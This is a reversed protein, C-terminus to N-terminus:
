SKRVGNLLPLLCPYSPTPHTHALPLLFLPNLLASPSSTIISPIQLPSITLVLHTGPLLSQTLFHVKLLRGFLLLHQMKLSLVSLTSLRPRGFRGQTSFGFGFRSTIPCLLHRSSIFKHFSRTHPHSSDSTDINLDGCAIFHSHSLLMSELIFCLDSVSSSPASPPRYLCGFAFSSLSSKFSSISLWLSEIVGSSVDCSLTSVSLHDVVYVAVGGGYRSRDAHHLSYDPLSVEADSILPGLWSESIALIDPRQADVLRNVDDFKHLLSRANLHVIKLSKTKMQAGPTTGPGPNLEIDGCCLLLRSRERLLSRFLSLMWSSRRKMNRLHLTFGCSQCCRVLSPSFPTSTDWLKKWHKHFVKSEPLLLPILFHLTILLFFSLLISHAVM